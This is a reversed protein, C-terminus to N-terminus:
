LRRYGSRVGMAGAAYAMSHTHAHATGGCPRQRAVDLVEVSFINKSTEHEKHDQWAFRLPPTRRAEDPVCFGATFYNKTLARFQHDQGM